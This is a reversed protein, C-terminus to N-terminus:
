IRIQHETGAEKDLIDEVSYRFGAEHDDENFENFDLAQIFFTARRSGNM